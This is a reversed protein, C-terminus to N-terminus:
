AMSENFVCRCNISSPLTYVKSLISKFQTSIYVGTFLRVELSYFMQYFPDPLTPLIFLEGQKCDDKVAVAIKKLKSTKRPQQILPTIESNQSLHVSSESKDDASGLLNQELSLIFTKTHVFLFPLPM